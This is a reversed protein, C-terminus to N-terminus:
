TSKKKERSRTMHTHTYHTHIHAHTRSQTRAHARTHTNNVMVVTGSPILCINEIKLFQIDTDNKCVNLSTKVTYVAPHIDSINGQKHQQSDRKAEKYQETAGPLLLGWGWGEM